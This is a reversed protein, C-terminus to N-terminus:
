KNKQFAAINRVILSYREERYTYSVKLQPVLYERVGTVIAISYGGRFQLHQYGYKPAQAALLSSVTSKEWM